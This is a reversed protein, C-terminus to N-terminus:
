SGLTVEVLFEPYSIGLISRIEARISVLNKRFNEDHSNSSDVRLGGKRFLRCARGFDGVLATGEPIVPTQVQRLGGWMTELPNAYPGGSAYGAGTLQTSALTAWDYPNILIANPTGGAVRVMTMAELVADYGNPSGQITSGDAATTSGTYLADAIAKEEKQMAMVGLETNIYNTLTPADQFFEESVTAFATWKEVTKYAQDFTFETGAKNEAEATSTMDTIARTAVPWYATNGTALNVINLVSQITVPYQVYGPTELGFWTPQIADANNSTSELVPDGVSKMEIAGTKFEPFGESRAHEVISIYDRSKTFAEGPNRAAVEVAEPTAVETITGLAELQAKKSDREEQRDVEVKHEAIRTMNSKYQTDEDETLDRNEKEATELLAAAKDHLRKIENLHFEKADM